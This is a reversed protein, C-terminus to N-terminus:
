VTGWLHLLLRNQFRQLHKNGIVVTVATDVRGKKKFFHTDPSVPHHRSPLTNLLYPFRMLNPFVVIDANNVPFHRIHVAYLRGATYTVQYSRIRQDDNDSGIVPAGNIWLM